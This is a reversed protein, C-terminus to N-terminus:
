KKQKILYFICKNLAQQMNMVSRTSQLFIFSRAQGPPGVCLEATSVSGPFPIHNSIKHTLKTPDHHGHLQDFM